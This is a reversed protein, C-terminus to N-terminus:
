DTPTLFLKQENLRRTTLGPFVVLQGGQHAKNWRPFELAAGAYDESNLKRSLTSQTIVRSGANYVLSTLAGLQHTNLDVQVTNLVLRQIRELEIILAADAEAQTIYEGMTVTRGNITSQGYGIVPLGNSDIYAYSRFGEHQKILNLTAPLVQFNAATIKNQNSTLASNNINNQELKQNAKAVLPESVFSTSCLLLIALYRSSKNIFCNKLFM